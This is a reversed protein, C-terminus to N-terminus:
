QQRTAELILAVCGAGGLASEFHTVAVRAQIELM